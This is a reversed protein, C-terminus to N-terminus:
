KSAFDTFVPDAAPLPEGFRAIWAPLDEGALGTLRGDGYCLAPQGTTTNTIIFPAMDDDETPPPEPKPDPSSARRNLETRLDPLSWTGSTTVSRPQWGGQVAAATAPDIKRGPAWENHTCVDDPRLGNASCVVLSTRMAADICAASYPEGVGTNQIEMGVAATNMSNAAITVGSPLLTPGGQGNTNTTGAALVWVDGNRAVLLNAIPRDPSGNCMYNADGAATSTASSATHHWMCCSPRGAAYGGSSRARTQWGDYEVVTLGAARLDDALTLLYRGSM